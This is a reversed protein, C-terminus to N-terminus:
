VAVDAKITEHPEYGEIEIDDWTYSFIDKAKNLKLTPYNRADRSLQEDVQDAHNSYIHCDGGTWVLDGVELDAQQALMHTLLAYSAINFPVGLFMDASRQYVQMSLRGDAVYLQFLCHCAPLQMSEIDAVNWASVMMRRSDPNNKLMDVLDAIQNHVIKKRFLHGEQPELYSFESPEIGHFAEGKGWSELASEGYTCDWQEVSIYKKGAIEVASGDITLKRQEDRSIFLTTDPSFVSSGYYFADLVFTSNKEWHYFGPVMHITNKFNEFSHWFPSVTVGAGGFDKYAFFDEDYCSWIITQWLRYIRSNMEELDMDEPFYGVGAIMKEEPANDDVYESHSDHPISIEVVDETPAYWRTWQEGYVPGLLGDNRGWSNWIKVGEDDLSKASTDGKLFWLLEKAVGEFFVKKTTILPFQESLNYRLQCGFLSMTGTGTRDEKYVGNVKIDELLNEYPTPISSM